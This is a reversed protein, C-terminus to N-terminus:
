AGQNNQFVFRRIFKMHGPFDGNRVESSGIIDVEGVNNEFAVSPVFHDQRARLGEAKTRVSPDFWHLSSDLAVAFARSM